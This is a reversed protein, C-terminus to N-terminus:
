IRDTDGSANRPEFAEPMDDRDVERLLVAGRPLSGTHEALADNVRRLLASKERYPLFASKFGQVILIKLEELTFGLKEHALWLEDTLTTDTILRNDTNVSVRVGVDFYLRLPHHALDEVVSTQYNSSLCVELPIRRDTVYALLDGDEALRTGHGIRHAGCYHLAQKISAPGYAEGAHVTTNMNNDLVLAFSEQHDKAPNGAEGGALDFAVVGRGKYAVALEALRYSDRPAMNRIGCLIVGTSIDYKRGARKLGALVADNIRALSLGRRTHLVPAYRVELHWVNEKAADEALEFATRELAEETQLVSCTIDFAKLYEELDKCREGMHIARALGAEDTAALKVRQREALELITKLRLSGDLHCHLDTKPLKHLLERTLTVKEAPAKGHAPAQPKGNSTM